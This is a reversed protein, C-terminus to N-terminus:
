DSPNAALVWFTRDRKGERCESRLRDPDSIQRVGGHRSYRAGLKEILTRQPSHEYLKLEGYHGRLEGLLADVSEGQPLLWPHVELFLAPRSALHRRAGRLVQAEYGEVDVKLLDIREEVVDDLRRVAVPTRPGSPEGLLTANIETSLMAEGDAEGLAVPFLRVNDFRNADINRRLEVVNDPQPEISDVRGRPGVAQRILLMYYGVNAGVDVAHM